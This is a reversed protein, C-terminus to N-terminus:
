KLTNNIFTLGMIKAWYYNIFFGILFYMDQKTEMQLKRISVLCHLSLYRAAKRLIQQFSDHLTIVPKLIIDTESRTTATIVTELDSQIPADLPM